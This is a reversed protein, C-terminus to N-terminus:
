QAITWSGLTVRLRSGAFVGGDRVSPHTADIQIPVLDRGQPRGRDVKASQVAWNAKCRHVEFIYGSGKADLLMFSVADAAQGADGWGWGYDMRFHLKGPNRDRRLIEDALWRPQKRRLSGRAQITPQKRPISFFTGDDGKAEWGLAALDVRPFDTEVSQESSDLASGIYRWPSGSQLLMAKMRVELSDTTRKCVLLIDDQNSDPFDM